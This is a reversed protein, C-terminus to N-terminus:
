PFEPSISVCIELGVVCLAVEDEASFVGGFGEGVEFEGPVCGVVRM